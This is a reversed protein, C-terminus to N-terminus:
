KKVKIIPNGKMQKPVKINFLNIITPTIDQKFMKRRIVKAQINSSVLLFGNLRKDEKDLYGHMGKNDNRGQWYNPLILHHNKVIFIIDGYKRRSEETYPLEFKQYDKNKLIHGYSIRNLKKLLDKEKEKNKIWFRANISDLFMLYDKGEVLDTDKLDKYINVRKNVITQGHDSLIILAYREYKNKLYNDVEKCFNDIEKIYNIAQKSTPGYEHSINDIKCLSEIQLDYEKKKLEKNFMEFQNGFKNYRKRLRKLFKTIPRKIFPNFTINNEKLVKFLNTKEKIVKYFSGDFYQCYKFPMKILNAYENSTIISIGESLLVRYYTRVKEPLKKDIYNLISLFPKIIRFPSTKPSYEIRFMIGHGTPPTGFYWSGDPFFRSGEIEAMGNNKNLSYLFPANKKNILYGGMGSFNLVVVKKKTKM